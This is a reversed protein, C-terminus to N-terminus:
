KGSLIEYYRSQNNILDNYISILLKQTKVNVKRNYIKIKDLENIFCEFGLLTNANKPNDREYFSIASWASNPLLDRLFVKEKEIQKYIKLFEMLNINFLKEELKNVM